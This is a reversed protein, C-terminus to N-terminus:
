LKVEKEMKRENKKEEPTTDNCDGREAAETYSVNKLTERKKDLREEARNVSNGFDSSYVPRIEGIDEIVEALKERREAKGNQAVHYGLTFAGSVILCGYYSIVRTVMVAVVLFPKDFFAVTSFVNMYLLEFIGSGGPLPMSNYGLLVFCQLAFVHLMDTAPEAAKFVFATIAVQAGRQLVNFLLTQLFLGRHKKIEAGCYRYKEVMASLKEKLVDPKKSLKLKALLSILANGTKLVAGPHRLCALFLWILFAQMVVGVIILVKSLTGFEFFVWGGSSSFLSIVFATLGLVFIAATYGLLNFVLIFTTAGGDFGDKVMYYASAPQGGTASPTLASYYADASSYALASVFKTKYGFKRAINKLSFAEAILFVFMCGVAAAIYWANCGSFFSRVDAWSLEENSKLLIFVTLALLFLVFLVNFLHKKVKKNV